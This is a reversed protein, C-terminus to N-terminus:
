GVPEGVRDAPSGEPFLAQHLRILRPDSSGNREFYHAFQHRMTAAILPHMDDCVRLESALVRGGAQEIAQRLFAADVGELREARVFTELHFSTSVTAAKLQEIIGASVERADTGGNLVIPAGCAVHIRGLDIRRRWARWTWRLLPGLRMKPKPAGSLEAAFANEEPIRDYSFAVPLLLVPRGASQLCRLLGRKPPLFERSRSRQGEVFFELTNGQAVLAHVRRTLDPDERGIGRRLYFAHLSRLIRGLIPIRGFEMTAAIHPIPIGLDPRAFCLYSGLVFDFYSRHTPVFAVPTGAPAAALAQKFSPIDVTVREVSRRLIKATIWAGLRIWGNGRPQTAAWRLDGGHGTHARGAMVWHSDDRRLVHRYVGCCVLDVYARPMFGEPLRAGGRFNFSNSTFPPFVRNIHRLRIRLRRASRRGRGPQMGAIAIALGHALAAALTFRLGRPGFYVLTPRRAVQHVRYWDRIGHWCDRIKPSQRLGAVVHRIGPPVGASLRSAELVAEAVVDVPILDVRTELSGVIARLHGLGVLIVFASFAATSDVWGPFPHQVSASIISPRLITVPVKGRRALLLHEALCKTLTYTNPHRSRRLLETQDMEGAMITAYLEEAPAPLPALDPRIEIGEGPFPTVYATSVYVLRQLRSWTRAEDLLTVTTLVNARAADLLPMDFDVSAAAHLVHTVESALRAHMEPSLGLGPQDLTGEVVVVHREWGEPLLSFCPSRAVEHQFRYDADHSGKPRILVWVKEVRLEERRRFLEELVVKGLSGTAGTLLYTRGRM